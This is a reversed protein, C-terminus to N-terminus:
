RLIIGGTPPPPANNSGFKRPYFSFTVMFYQQLGNTITTTASNERVFNEINKNQRLLDFASLKLEAKQQMFRYNAGANWINAKISNGNAAVNNQYDLSTNVTLGKTIKYTVNGKTSYNRIVSSITTKGRQENRNHGITEGLNITVKDILHYTLNLM